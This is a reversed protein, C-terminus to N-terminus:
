ILEVAQLHRRLRRAPRRVRVGGIRADPVTEGLRPSRFDWVPNRLRVPKGV